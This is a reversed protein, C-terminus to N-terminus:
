PNMFLFYYVLCPDISLVFYQESVQIMLCVWCESGSAPLSYGHTLMPPATPICGQITSVSDDRFAASADAKHVWNKPIGAQRYSSRRYIKTLTQLYKRAAQGIENQSAHVVAPCQSHSSIFEVSLRKFRVRVLSMRLRLQEVFEENKSKGYWKPVVHKRGYADTSAPAGDKREDPLIFKPWSVPCDHKGPPGSANIRRTAYESFLRAGLLPM